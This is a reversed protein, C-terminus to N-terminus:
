PWQISGAFQRTFAQINERTFGALTFHSILAKRKYGTSQNIYFADYLDPWKLYRRVCFTTRAPISANPGSRTFGQKCSFNTVDDKSAKNGPMFSNMREEYHRYFRTNSIDGGELWFFEYEVRGTSFQRSMYINDKQVCSRMAMRLPNGDSPEQDQGWCDIVPTIEHPVRAAGLPSTTWDGELLAGMIRDQSAKLQNGILDNLTEGPPRQLISELLQELKDVPVLFGIQNGSTAVNIGVVEGRTNITPGGSMGPNIAGSFHIRDYFSKDTLGSYTGPVLTMGLNQPNGMAVLTEGRAPVDPALKLVGKGPNDILLVALDNIVDVALLAMAGKEGNARTYFIRFKDPKNVAESVVHYNSVILGAASIQFGSGIGVKNNTSADVIEIIYLSDRHEAYLRQFSTTPPTGTEQSARLPLSWCLASLLGLALLLLRM